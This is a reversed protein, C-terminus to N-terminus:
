GGGSSPAGNGSSTGYLAILVADILGGHPVRCRPSALFPQGPFLAAALSRNAAKRLKPDAPGLGLYKRWARPTVLEPRAGSAGLAGIVTGYAQGFSFMSTVGQGPMASVRELCIRHPRYAFAESLIKGLEVADVGREDTPMVALWRLLPPEGERGEVLALGGTLGPDIGLCIM